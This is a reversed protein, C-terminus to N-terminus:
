FHAINGTKPNFYYAKPSLVFIGTTFYAIRSRLYRNKKISLRFFTGKKVTSRCLATLWDVSKVAFIEEATMLIMTLNVFTTMPTLTIWITAM